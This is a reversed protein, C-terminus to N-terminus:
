ERDMEWIDEGLYNWPLRHEDPNVSDFRETVGYIIAGDNLGVNKVGHAVGPPIEIVQPDPGLIMREFPFPKGDRCEFLVLLMKSSPPVFWYDTQKKHLHFAKIAGPPMESYNVQKIDKIDSFIEMMSGAGSKDLFRRISLKRVDAIFNRSPTYDQTTLAKEIDNRLYVM